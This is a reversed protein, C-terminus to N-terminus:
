KKHLTAKEKRLLDEDKKKQEDIEKCWGYIAHKMRDAKVFGLRINTLSRIFEENRQLAIQILQRTEEVEQTKVGYNLDSEFQPLKFFADNILNNSTSNPILQTTKNIRLNNNKDNDIHRSKRESQISNDEPAPRKRQELISAKVLEKELNLNHDYKPLKLGEATVHAPDDGLFVNMLKSLENVNQKEREIIDITETALEALHTSKYVYRISKRSIVDSPSKIPGLIDEFDISKMLHDVDDAESEDADSIGYDATNDNDTKATNKGIEKEVKRNLAKQKRLERKVIQDLTFKKNQLVFTKTPKGTLPDRTSIGVMKFHDRRSNLKHYDVTRSDYLCKNGRNSNGASFEEDERELINEENFSPGDRKKSEIGYHFRLIDAKSTENGPLKHHEATMGSLQKSRKECLIRQPENGYSITTHTWWLYSLPLSLYIFFYFYFIFFYTAFNFM